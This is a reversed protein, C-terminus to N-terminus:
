LIKFWIQGQIVAPRSYKHLGGGRTRTAKQIVKMVCRIPHALEAPVDLGLNRLLAM